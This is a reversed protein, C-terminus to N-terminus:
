DGPFLVPYLLVICQVELSCPAMGTMLQLVCLYGGPPRQPASGPRASAALVWLSLGRLLHTTRFSQLTHSPGTRSCPFPPLLPLSSASHASWLGMSGRGQVTQCCFISYKVVSIVLCTILGTFCLAICSHPSWFCNGVKMFSRASILFLFLHVNEEKKAGM